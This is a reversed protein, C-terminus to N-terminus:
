TLYMDLMFRDISGKGEFMLDIFGICFCECMILKYAQKSYINTIIDKYAIFTKIEEPINEVRLRNFYTVNDDNVHFAIWHTEISKYKDLNVVYAGDKKNNLSNNKWYVLNITFLNIEIPDKHRM